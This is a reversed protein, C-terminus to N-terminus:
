CNGYYYAGSFPVQNAHCHVLEWEMNVDRGWHLKNCRQQHLTTNAGGQV